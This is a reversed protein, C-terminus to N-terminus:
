RLCELRGGGARSREVDPFRLPCLSIINPVHREPFCSLLWEDGTVRCDRVHIKRSRNAARSLLVASGKRARSNTLQQKSNPKTIWAAWAARHCQPLKKRKLFRRSWHKPPLCCALSPRQTKYR